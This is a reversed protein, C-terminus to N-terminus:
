KPPPDACTNFANPNDKGVPTKTVVQPSPTVVEHGPTVVQPEPTVVENAVVSASQRSPL